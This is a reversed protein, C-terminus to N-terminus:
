APHQLHIHEPVLSPPHLHGIWSHVAEHVFDYAVRAQMKCTQVTSFIRETFEMGRKSRTCYSLKRKIVYDRLAREAANNTPPVLANGLFTWMAPWMKLLNACTNATRKCQTQVHGLELQVRIRRQLWAFHRADKEENRWRFLLYGYGLLRQGIRGPLASRQAIREFDRLLHAWCVQRQALPLHNYGAYRDSVTVFGPQEGLILQAAMQGRSPDIRFRVGWDSLLAWMWLTHQHNQHRTEDAHCVPAQLLEAHLQAVPKDLAQSVLGHAQSVAGLSFHIGMVHSLVAQVKRQTLHFQGALTGVLALARPGLQGSPVGAPLAGHHKRGCGSCIGRLRVYESVIPEIKPLEFVQHRIPKDGDVKIASGCADCQAPPQCQTRHQVDQEPVMARFSGKHGPQGGLKKGSPSKSPRAPPTAPGDSSPPKSSNRSNLSVREELWSLRQMLQHILEHCGPVTDPLASPLESVPAPTARRTM